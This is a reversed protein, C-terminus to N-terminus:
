ITMVLYRCVVRELDDFIKPRIRLGQLEARLVWEQLKRDDDETFVHRVKSAAVLRGSPFGSNDQVDGHDDLAIGADTLLDPIGREMSLGAGNSIIIAFLLWGPMVCTTTAV